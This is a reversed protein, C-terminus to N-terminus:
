APQGKREVVDRLVPLEVFRVADDDGLDDRLPRLLADRCDAITGPEFGTRGGDSWLKARSLTEVRWVAGSRGIRFDITRVVVGFNDPHICMAMEDPKCNM